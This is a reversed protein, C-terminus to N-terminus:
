KYYLQKGKMSFQFSGFRFANSFMTPFLFHEDGANEEKGVVDEVRQLGFEM